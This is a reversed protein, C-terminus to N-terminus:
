SFGLPYHYQIEVESEQRWILGSVEDPALDLSWGVVRVHDVSNLQNVNSDHKEIANRISDKARLSDDQPTESQGISEVAFREIAFGQVNGLTEDETSGGESPVLGCCPMQIKDLSRPEPYVAAFTIEFGNDETIRRLDALIADRIERSIM